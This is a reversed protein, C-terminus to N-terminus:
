CDPPLLTKRDLPTKFLHGQSGVNGAGFLWPLGEADVFYELDRIQMGESNFKDLNLRCKSELGDDVVAAVELQSAATWDGPQVAIFLYEGIPQVDSCTFAEAGIAFEGLEAPHDSDYYYVRGRDWEKSGPEGAKERVKPDTDCLYLREKSEDYAIRQVVGSFELPQTALYDRFELNSGEAAELKDRDFILLHGHDRQRVGATLAIKDEGMPQLEGLFAYQKKGDIEKVINIKMSARVRDQTFLVLKGPEEVSATYHDNFRANSFTVLCGSDLLCLDQPYFDQVGCAPRELYLESEQKQLHCRIVLPIKLRETEQDDAVYRAILVFLEGDALAMRWPNAWGQGVLHQHLSLAGDKKFDPLAIFHVGPNGQWAMGDYAGGDLVVMQEDKIIVQELYSGVALTATKRESGEWAVVTQSLSPLSVLAAFLGVPQLISKM